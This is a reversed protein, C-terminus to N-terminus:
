FFPNDHLWKPTSETLSFSQSFSPSNIIFSVSHHLICLHHLYEIISQAAMQFFIGTFQLCVMLENVSDSGKIQSSGDELQPLLAIAPKQGRRSSDWESFFFFFFILAVDLGFVDTLVELWDAVPMALHGMHQISNSNITDMVPWRPMALFILRQVMKKKRSGSFIPEQTPMRLFIHTINGVVFFHCGSHM